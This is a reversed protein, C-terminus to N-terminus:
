SRLADYFFYAAGAFCAGLLAVIDWGANDSSFYGIAVALGLVTMVFARYESLRRAAKRNDQTM